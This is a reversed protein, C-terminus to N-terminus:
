SFLIDGPILILQPSLYTASILRYAQIDKTKVSPPAAPETWAPRALMRPDGAIFILPPLIYTASLYLHRFDEGSRQSIHFSM